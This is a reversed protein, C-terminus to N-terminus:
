SPNSFIWKWASVLSNWIIEIFLRKLFPIIRKRFSPKEGVHENTLDMEENEDKNEIFRPIGKGEQYDSIIVYPQYHALNKYFMYPQMDVIGLNNIHTAEFEITDDVRLGTTWLQVQKDLDRSRQPEDAVEILKAKGLDNDFYFRKHMFFEFTIVPPLEIENLDSFNEGFDISRVEVSIRVVSADNTISSTVGSDDKDLVKGRVKLPNM